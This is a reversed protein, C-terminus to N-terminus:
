TGLTKSRCRVVGANTENRKMRKFTRIIASMVKIWAVGTYHAVAHAESRDEISPHSLDLLTDILALNVEISTIPLTSPVPNISPERLLIELLRTMIRRPSTTFPSALPGPITSQSTTSHSLAALRYEALQFGIHHSRSPTSPSRATCTSIVHM